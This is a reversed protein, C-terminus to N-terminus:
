FLIAGTNDVIRRHDDIMQKPTVIAGRKRVDKIANIPIETIVRGQWDSDKIAQLMQLLETKKTGFLLDGLEEVTKAYGMDTRGASLHVEKIVGQELLQPLHEQWPSITRSHSTDYTIGTYGLSEGKKIMEDITTVGWMEMVEKTPQYTNEGFNTHRGLAAEDFLTTKPYLVIDLKKGVIEQLRDLERVSTPGYPLAMYAQLALAKNPHRLADFITKEGRFGEHLSKIKDPESIKGHNISIGPIGKLPHYELGSYGSESAIDIFADIPLLTTYITALGLYNLIATDLEMKQAPETTPKGSEIRM